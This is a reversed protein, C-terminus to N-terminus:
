RVGVMERRLDGLERRWRSGLARATSAPDPDGDPIRECRPTVVLVRDRRVEAFGGGIVLHFTRTGKRYRAPAVPLRILLPEHRPLVAIESGLEFRRERRRVVVADVDSAVLAPGDPTVIELTLTRATM